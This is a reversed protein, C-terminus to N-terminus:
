KLRREVCREVEQITNVEPRDACASAIIVIKRTIQERDIGQQFVQELFEATRKQGEEYCEGGETTCDVLLARQQHGIYTDWVLFILCILILLALILKLSREALVVRGRQKILEERNNHEDAM